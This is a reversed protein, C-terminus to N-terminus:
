PKWVAIATEPAGPRQSMPLKMPVSAAPFSVNGPLTVPTEM